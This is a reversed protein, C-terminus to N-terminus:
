AHSVHCITMSLGLALRVSYIYQYIHHVVDASYSSFKRGVPGYQHIFMLTETIIMIKNKNNLVTVSLRQPASLYQSGIVEMIIPICHSKYILVVKPVLLM